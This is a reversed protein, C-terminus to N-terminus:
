LLDAIASQVGALTNGELSSARYRKWGWWSIGLVAILMVAYTVYRVYERVTLKRKIKPLAKAEEMAEISVRTTEQNGWAGELKVEEKKALSTLNDLQRVYALAQEVFVKPIRILETQGAKWHLKRGVKKKQLM